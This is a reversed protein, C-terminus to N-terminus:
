IIIDESFTVIVPAGPALSIERGSFAKAVKAAGRAIVDQFSAAIQATASASWLNETKAAADTMDRLLPFTSLNIAAELIIGFFSRDYIEGELVDAGTISQVVGRCHATPRTPSSDSCNKVSAVIWRGNPSLKAEAGIRLGATQPLRCGPMPGKVRLTVYEIRGSDSVTIADEILAMVRCNARIVADSYHATTGQIERIGGSLRAWPNPGDNSALNSHNPELLRRTPARPHSDDSRPSTYSSLRIVSNEHINEDEQAAETIKDCEGLLFRDRTCKTPTAKSSPKVDEDVFPKEPSKIEEARQQRPAKDLEAIKKDFDDPEARIVEDARLSAFPDIKTDDANKLTKSPGHQGSSSWLFFVLALISIYIPLRIDKIM